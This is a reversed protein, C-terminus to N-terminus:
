RGLLPRICSGSEMAVSWWNSSAGSKRGRHWKDNKLRDDLDGDENIKPKRVLNLRMPCLTELRDHVGFNRDGVPFM